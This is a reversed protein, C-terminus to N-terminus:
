SYTIGTLEGLTYVLTKTTKIGAPIDGSLVIATLVDSTYSFTKVISESGSTYTITELNGSANKVFVADHSKLNKSVTEFSLGQSEAWGWAGASRLVAYSKGDEPLLPEVPIWFLPKVKAAIDAFLSILNDKASM